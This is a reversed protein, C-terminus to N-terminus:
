NLVENCFEFFKNFEHGIKLVHSMKEITVKTVFQCAKPCIIVILRSFDIAVHM